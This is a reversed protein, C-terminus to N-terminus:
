SPQFNVSKLLDGARVIESRIFAKTDGISEAVPELAHRPTKSAIAPDRM